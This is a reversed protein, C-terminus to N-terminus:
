HLKLRLGEHSTEFGLQQYFRIARERQKDSTVQVQKCGKDKARQIGWKIIKTGYGQGRYQSHVRVGNINCRMSGMLGLYQIFTLQMMGIIKENLIAVVLENNPDSDIKQFAKTYCENLPETADERKSGLKDDAIMKVLELLDNEKAERYILDM